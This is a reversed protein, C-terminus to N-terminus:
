LTRCGAAMDVSDSPREALLLDLLKYDITDLTM